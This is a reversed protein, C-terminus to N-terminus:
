ASQMSRVTSNRSAPFTIKVSTGSGPTSTIQVDGDHLDVLTKVLSLGLGTGEYKRSLTSDVQRFPEFLHPIEDPAIGIGTDRVCIIARGDADCRTEITINGKETFKIANSLLNLLIQKVRLRDIWLPPLPTMRLVIQLGQESAKGRMLRVCEKVLQELDVSEPHLNLKGAEAKAIDLIDNILSLLHNGAGHIDNAYDRYRPVGPGFVESGILESFGIIANLPTRLEHSMNALFESKMRNSTEAANKAAQNVLLESELRRRELEGTRFGHLTRAFDGIEDQRRTFPVKSDFTDKAFNRITRTILKLPFIVRRFIYFVAFSALSISMLILAIAAAFNLRATRALDECYTATLDLATESVDAISNLGPTSRNMWELESMTAGKGEALNAIVQGRLARFQRFYINNARQVAARLTPTISPLRTDDELAAWLSNIEGASESLKLLTQNSLRGQATATALVRREGGAAVRVNWSLKNVESMENIFSDTRPMDRSLTNAEANLADMLRALTARWDAILVKDRQDRPNKLTLAARRHKNNYLATRDVIETLGARDGNATYAKLEDIALALSKNLNSHVAFVHELAGPAASQPADFLIGLGALEVRIAQKSSLLTREIHVVALTDTAAQERRFAEWATNASLLALLVVFLGTIASLTTGVSFFRNVSVKRLCAGHLGCRPM